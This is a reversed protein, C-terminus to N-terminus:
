PLKSLYGIDHPLVYKVAHSAQHWSKSVHCVPLVVTYMTNEQINMADMAKVM